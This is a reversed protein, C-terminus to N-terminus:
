LINKVAMKHQRAIVHQIAFCVVSLSSLVGTICVILYMYMQVDNPLGLVVVLQALVAALALTCKTGLLMGLTLKAGILALFHKLILSARDAVFHALTAIIGILLLVLIFSIFLSPEGSTQPSDSLLFSHLTSSSEYLSSQSPFMALVADIIYSGAVGIVFLWSMVLSAYGGTGFFHAPYRVRRRHTHKPKKVMVIKFYVM